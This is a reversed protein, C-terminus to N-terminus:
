KVRTYSIAMSEFMEGAPSPAWWQMTFEDNSKITYVNKYKMAKNTMPDMMEGDFTIVKGTADASGEAKLLSTGMNDIWASVHKGIINDYGMCGMGEFPMGMMNGNVTVMLYRGGLAMEGSYEGSSEQKPQAPDMQYWMTYTFKGAMAELAKHQAGPTMSKNWAEMMAADPMGGAAQGDAPKAPHDKAPHDKHGAAPAAKDDSMAWAGISCVGAVVASLAFLNRKGM